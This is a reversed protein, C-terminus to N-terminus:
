DGAGVMASDLPGDTRPPDLAVIVGDVVMVCWAKPDRELRRCYGVWDREFVEVRRGARAAREFFERVRASGASERGERM